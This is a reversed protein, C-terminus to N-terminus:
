PTQPPTADDKLLADAAPTEAAPMPTTPLETPAGVNEIRSVRDNVFFVTLRQRVTKDLRGLQLTYLYDWRDQDFGDPLMPTGLLFRVQTRTMGEKIQTVQRADLFNGQQVVMRYVCGAQLLCVVVVVARIARTLPSTQVM